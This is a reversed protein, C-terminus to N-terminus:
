HSFSESPTGRPSAARRNWPMKTLAMAMACSNTVGATVLGAGVAASVLAFYPHVTAALVSAVAVIGGSVIRVQRDLSIVSRDRIVPLGLEMWRRTGGVICVLNAGPYQACVKANRVGGRCNVYLPDCDPGLRGAMFAALDPSDIPLNRAGAIHIERFEVPTSVDVIAAERGDRRLKELAEPQIKQVTVQRTM